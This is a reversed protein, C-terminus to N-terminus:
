FIYNRNLIRICTDTAEKKLMNIDMNEIAVAVDDIKDVRFM